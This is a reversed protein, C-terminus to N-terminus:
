YVTKEDVNYILKWVKYWLELFMPNKWTCYLQQCRRQNKKPLFYWSFSKQSIKKHELSNFEYTQWRASHKTKSKDWGKGHSTYIIWCCHTVSVNEFDFWKNSAIACERVKGAPYPNKNQKTPFVWSIASASRRRKKQVNFFLLM